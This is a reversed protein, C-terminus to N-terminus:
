KWFLILLIWEQVKKYLNHFVSSLKQNDVLMLNDVFMQKQVTYLYFLQQPQGIPLALQLTPYKPEARHVWM